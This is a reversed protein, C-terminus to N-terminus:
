SNEGHQLIDAEPPWCPWSVNVVEGIISLHRGDHNCSSVWHRAPHAGVFM